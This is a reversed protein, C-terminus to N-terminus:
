TFCGIDFCFLRSLNTKTLVTCRHSTATKSQMCFIRSFEGQQVHRGAQWRELTALGDHAVVAGRTILQDDMRPWAQRQQIEVQPRQWVHLM